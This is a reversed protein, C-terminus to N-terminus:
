GKKLQKLQTELDMIKHVLQEAESIRQSIEEKYLEIKSAPIAQLIQIAEMALRKAEGLNGETAADRAKELRNEAERLEPPLLSNLAKKYSDLDEWSSILYKSTAIAAKKPNTSYLLSYTAVLRPFHERSVATRDSVFIGHQRLVVVIQSVAKAIPHANAKMFESVEDYAKKIDELTAIPTTTTGNNINHLIAKELLTADIPRIFHKLLFRDYLAVLEEERPLENSAAFLSHLPCNYVTGDADVFIRENMVNLVVNLTESAGKFIEDLFAVEATPLKGRVNRRFRGQRYELPDIPGVIEDPLTHKSILYYFYQAKILQSLKHVLASKATGPQGIFVAHQKCVLALIAVKAEEERGVFSSALANELNKLVEM